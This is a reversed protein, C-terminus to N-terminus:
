LNRGAQYLLDFAVYTVPIAAVLRSTPRAVHIRRQLLAFSPRGGDFAVIEGDVILTRRGAAAALATGIEPYSATVDRGNRGRIVAEGGSAYGIARAGDWKVEAAWNAPDPPLDRSTTALMPAILPMRGPAAMPGGRTRAATVRSPWPLSLPNRCTM